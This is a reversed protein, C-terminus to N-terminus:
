CSALRFFSRATATTAEAVDEVSVGRLQAIREAVLRVLAPENVSGRLPVPALYPADTEVMFRDAPCWAAVDHVDPANNFTVIGTFSVYGDLEDFIREAQQRNGIFCHFVPRVTPYRRAIALADEFSATGRRDRTHLSINLGLRSALDFHIELLECQRRRYDEEAWGEPAPWYYDLGAEGIAGLPHAVALERLLATDAEGALHVETPHVALCPTVFSPMMRNLELQAEWDARETGLSVCHGVGREAAREALQQLPREALRHSALHCHTDILM